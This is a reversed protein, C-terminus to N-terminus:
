QKRELIRRRGFREFSSGRLSPAGPREDVIERGPAREVAQAEEGALLSTKNLSLTYAGTRNPEFPTAILFYIGTRDLRRTIRADRGTSGGGTNDDSTIPPDGDNGQLILFSDITGSGMAAQINDQNVGNFWYLDLYTGASTQLDGAAFSPNTASQGYALQTAVNNLLRISFAGTGNPQNDSSSAFAVYRGATPLVMFLLANNNEIRGNGYGGSQDDAGILTLQDVNNVRDVRYLLVGADFATSRLDVAVSTNAATTEFSFADFFYTKGDTGLQVQDTVSLDATLTQGFAIVSARVAPQTGETHIDWREFHELPGANMFILQPHIVPGANMLAASLAEEVPEVAPFAAKM